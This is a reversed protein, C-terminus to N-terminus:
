GTQEKAKRTLGNNNKLRSYSCALMNGHEERLHM